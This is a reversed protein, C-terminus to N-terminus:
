AAVDVDIWIENRRNFIHFPSDYGAITPNKSAVEVDAGDLAALLATTEPVITQFWGKVYGPFSRVAVTRAATHTIYVLESSPQPPDSQYSFPAAFSSPSLAPPPPLPTAHLRQSRGNPLLCLQRM